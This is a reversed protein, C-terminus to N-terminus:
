KRRVIRIVQVPSVCETGDDLSAIIRYHIFGPFVESDNARNWRGLSFVNIDIDDFYEGDYSRQIVYGNIHNSNVTWSLSTGRGQRHLNFSKFVNEVTQKTLQTNNDTSKGLKNTASTLTIVSVFLLVLLSIRTKM